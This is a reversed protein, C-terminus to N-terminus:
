AVPVARDRRDEVSGTGCRDPPARRDTGSSGTETQRRSSPDLLLRPCDTCDQATCAGLPPSSVLGSASRIRCFLWTKFTHIHSLYVSPNEADTNRVTELVFSRCINLKITKFFSNISLFSLIDIITSM